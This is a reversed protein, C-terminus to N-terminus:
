RSCAAVPVRACSACPGVIGGRVGGCLQACSVQHVTVGLPVGRRLGNEQGAGCCLQKPLFASASTSQMSVVSCMFVEIPRKINTDSLNVKGKGTTYNALGLSHRLEDESAAHALDIKNGLVLFPVNALGDDALLADLEKRSELFRERDTADCLYVIADV